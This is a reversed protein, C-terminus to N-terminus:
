LKSPLEVTAAHSRQIFARTDLYGAHLQALSTVGLLRMTTEIEDSLVPLTLQLGKEGIVSKRQIAFEVGNSGYAGLAYLFPRGIAVATAGLAIAKIVDTGRRVGGDVYIDIKGFLQPCHNRMELLTQVASPAFDLQRGGHNSLYIGNAGAKYALLADEATQIGKLVIPRDKGWAERIWTLDEWALTSSHVGRLIPKEGDPLTDRLPPSDAVGAEYNVLAQYRDDEERKGVVPTDVTVILASFGLERAKRILQVADERRRPVYLQFFLMNTKRQQAVRDAIDAHAQSAYTSVTFPINKSIAAKVLDLEGDPSALRVMATPAIFIPLQSIQSMIRTQMDVQAVNRM